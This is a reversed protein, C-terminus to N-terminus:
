PLNSNIVLLYDCILKQSTGFETVKSSMSGPNHDADRRRPRSVYWRRTETEDQSFNNIDRDRGNIEPPGSWNEALNHQGCYATHVHKLHQLRISYYSNSM